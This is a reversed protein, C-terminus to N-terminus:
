TMNRKYLNLKSATVVERVRLRDVSNNDRHMLAKALRRKKIKEFEEPDSVEFKSDYFRPMKVKKGDMVAFDGSRHSHRGFREYWESAIGPRRSSCTFEPLRQSVVGDASVFQYHEDAMDGTIKEMIYRAVYACSELTVAGIVNFGHPWLEELFKSTYLDEGSKSKKLYKKDFFDRNFFLYHYHPRGFESGYEGCMFFRIGKGTRKRLRKMFLQHDRVSLSRDAPLAEDRYTLTVFSSHEHLQKEHM